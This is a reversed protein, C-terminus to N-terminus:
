IAARSDTREKILSNVDTQLKSSERQFILFYSLKATYLHIKDRRKKLEAFVSSTLSVAMLITVM